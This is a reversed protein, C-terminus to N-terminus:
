KLNNQIKRHTNRHRSHLYMGGWGAGESFHLILLLVLLLLTLVHPFFFFFTRGGGFRTLCANTDKFAPLFWLLSDEVQKVGFYIKASLKPGESQLHDRRRDRVSPWHRCFLLWLSSVLTCLSIHYCIPFPADWLSKM